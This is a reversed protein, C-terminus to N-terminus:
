QQHKGYVRLRVDHGDFCAYSFHSIWDGLIIVRAGDPLQKDLMAHRHGFVFYDVRPNSADSLYERAYRVLPEDDENIIRSTYVSELSAKRSQASWGHALAMTWRPHIAAYLCRCVPNRFIKRLMRFGAPRVGVADGHDLLFTKGGIKRIVPGDVVEVGIERPLYDFIWMDHNGKFWYIKVGADALQALAGFFRVFGRPVVSKYEFWFDLMDGMLYLEEADDRISHLFEVVKAEHARPDHIYSAGLHSDSLFYVM